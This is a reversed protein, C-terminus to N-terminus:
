CCGPVALLVSSINWNIFRICFKDKVQLFTRGEDRFLRFPIDSDITNRLETWGATTLYQSGSVACVPHKIGTRLPLSICKLKFISPACLKFFQNSNVPKCVASLSHHTDIFYFLLFRRHQASCQMRNYLQGCRSQLSPIFCDDYRLKLLHMCQQTKIDTTQACCNM